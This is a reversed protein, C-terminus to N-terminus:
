NGSKRKNAEKWEKYSQGQAPRSSSGGAGGGQGGGGGQSTGTNGGQTSRAQHERGGQAGDQGQRAEKYGDGSRSSRREDERPRDIYRKDRGEGAERNESRSGRSSDYRRWDDRDGGGARNESRSDRHGEGSKGDGPDRRLDSGRERSSREDRSHERHGGGDRRSSSEFYREGEGGGRSSGERERSGGFGRNGAVPEMNPNLGGRGDRGRAGRAGGRGRQGGRGGGRGRGRFFGRETLMQEIEREEQERLRKSEMLGRRTTRVYGRAFVVVVPAHDPIGELTLLQMKDEIDTVPPQADEVEFAKTFYFEEKYEKYGCMSGVAKSFDKPQPPEEWDPPNEEEKLLTRDWSPVGSDMTQRWEGPMPAEWVEKEVDVGDGSKTEVKSSVGSSSRSDCDKKEM